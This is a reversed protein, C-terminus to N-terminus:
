KGRQLGMMEHKVSYYNIEQLCLAFCAWIRSCKLPPSLLIAITTGIEKNVVFCSFRQMSSLPPKGRNEPHSKRLGRFFSNDHSAERVQWESRIAENGETQTLKSREECRRPLSGAVSSKYKM